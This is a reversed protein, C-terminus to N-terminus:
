ENRLGECLKAIEENTLFFEYTSSHVIEEDEGLVEQVFYVANLNKPVVCPKVQVRLKFAEEDKILFEKM